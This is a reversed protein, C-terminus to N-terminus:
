VQGRVPSLSGTRVLLISLSTKWSNDPFAKWEQYSTFQLLFEGESKEQQRISKHSSSISPTVAAMNHGHSLIGIWIGLVASSNFCGRIKKTHSFIYM